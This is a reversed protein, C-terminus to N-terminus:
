EMLSSLVHVVVAAVAVGHAHECVCAGLHAPFRNLCSMGYCELLLITLYTRLYMHGDPPVTPQCNFIDLVSRTLNLYLYYMMVLATGVMAPVHTYLKTKRRLILGKRVLQFVHFLLLLGLACAPLLQVFSWKTKYGFSPIACQAPLCFFVVSRENMRQCRCKTNHTIRFTQHMVTYQAPALTLHHLSHFLLTVDRVEPATIDINFNFASLYLFFQNLEAPFVCHLPPAGSTFMTILMIYQRECGLCLGM